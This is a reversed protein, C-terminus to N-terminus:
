KNFKTWNYEYMNSFFNEYEKKLQKGLTVQQGDHKEPLTILGSINMDKKGIQYFVVGKTVFDEDNEEKYLQTYKDDDPIEYMWVTDSVKKCKTLTNDIETLMTEDDGVAVCQVEENKDWGEPLTFYIKKGSLYKGKENYTYTECESVFNYADNLYGKDELVKMTNTYAEPIYILGGAYGGADYGDDSSIRYTVSIGWIKEYSKPIYMGNAEVDKKLAEVFSNILEKNEPKSLYDVEDTVQGAKVAYDDGYIEEEDADGNVVYKSIQMDTIYKYPIIYFPHKVQSYYKTSTIDSMKKM